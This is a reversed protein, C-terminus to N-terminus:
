RQEGEKWLLCKIQSTIREPIESQIPMLRSYMRVGQYAFVILDFVAEPDVNKFEGTRIGYEILETWMKKSAQYQRSISNEGKSIFPNSFFEYIAVSLSNESDIMEKEYRALVDELIRAAPVHKHIKVSFENQQTKMLGSIIEMFIQETSQYHRYLGGRSLKTGKCIDQMTVEKYGKEAFLKYAAMCIMHKTNDGKAGM